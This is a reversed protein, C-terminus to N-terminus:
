SAITGGVPVSYGGARNRLERGLAVFHGVRQARQFQQGDTSFDYDRALSAAIAEACDAGAAPLNVFTTGGGDDLVSRQALFENVEDDTLLQDAADTDGVMLRVRELDTTIPM